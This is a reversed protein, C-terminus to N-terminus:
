GLEECCLIDKYNINAYVKHFVALIQYGAM